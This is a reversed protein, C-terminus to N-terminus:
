LPLLKIHLKKYTFDNDMKSSLSQHHHVAVPGIVQPCLRRILKDFLEMSRLTILVAGDRKTTATVVGAACMHNTYTTSLEVEKRSNYNIVFCLTTRNYICCYM